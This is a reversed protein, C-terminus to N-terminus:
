RGEGYIGAAVLQGSTVTVTTPAPIGENKALLKMTYVGPPLTVTFFGDGDSSIKRWPQGAPGAYSSSRGRWVGIRMYALPRPGGPPPGGEFMTHGWVSSGSPLEPVYSRLPGLGALKPRGALFHLAWYYHGQPVIVLYFTRATFAHDDPDPPFRGYVIAVYVRSSALLPTDEPSPL